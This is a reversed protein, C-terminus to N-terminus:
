GDRRRDVITAALLEYDTSPTVAFEDVLHPLVSSGDRARIASGSGAEFPGVRLEIRRPQSVIAFSLSSEAANRDAFQSIADTV